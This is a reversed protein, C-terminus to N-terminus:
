RAERLLLRSGNINCLADADGHLSLFPVSVERINNVNSKLCTVFARLM